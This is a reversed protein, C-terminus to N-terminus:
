KDGCFDIAIGIVAVLAAAGLFLATRPSGTNDKVLLKEYELFFGQINLIKKIDEEDIEMILYKSIESGDPIYGKNLDAKDIYVALISFVISPDSNLILNLLTFAVDSTGSLRKFFTLTHNMYKISIREEINRKFKIEMLRLFVENCTNYKQFGDRTFFLFKKDLVNFLGKQFKDYLLENQKLFEVFLIRDNSTINERKVNEVNQKDLDKNSIKFSIAEDQFYADVLVTAVDLMGQFYTFPFDFFTKELIFLYLKRILYSKQVRSFNFDSRDLDNKITCNDTNDVQKLNNVELEYKKLTALLAKRTM